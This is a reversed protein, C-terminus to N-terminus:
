ALFELGEFGGEQNGLFGSGVNRAHPQHHIFPGLVLSWAVKNKFVSLILLDDKLPCSVVLNKMVWGLPQFFFDPKKISGRSCSPSTDPDQSIHSGNGIGLGRYAPITYMQNVVEDQGRPFAQCAPGAQQVCSYSGWWKVEKCGMMKLHNSWTVKLVRKAILDRTRPSWGALVVAHGFRGKVM